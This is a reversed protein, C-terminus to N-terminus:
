PRISVSWWDTRRPTICRRVGYPLSLAEPYQTAYDVLVLIYRHGQSTKPLPGVIDLAIQYTSVGTM